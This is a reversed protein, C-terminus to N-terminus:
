VVSKKLSEIIKKEKRSVQVQTLHLIKATEAQTKGKIYRLAVIQQETGSLQKIGEKLALIETLQETKDVGVMDGFTSEKGDDNKTPEDFSLPTLVADMALVIDEASDGTENAIENITPERGLNSTLNQKARTARLAIEKLHRSVKVPGDDRIYRKIEGAIVPVAYTSFMVGRETDFSRAAKLLGICGAQFLDDYEYNGFLFRRAASHVLGINDKILQEEAETDGERARKILSINDYTINM